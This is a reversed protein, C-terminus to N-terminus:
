HSGWARRIMDPTFERVYHALGQVTHALVMDLHASRLFQNMYLFINRFGAKRIEDFTSGYRSLTHMGTAFVHCEFGVCQEVREMLPRLKGYDARTGTIFLIKKVETM